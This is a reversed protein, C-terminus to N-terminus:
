TEVVNIVTNRTCHVGLKEGHLYAKQADLWTCKISNIYGEPRHLLYVIQLTCHQKKICFLTPAGLIVTDSYFHMCMFSCSLFNSVEFMVLLLMFVIHFTHMTDLSLMDVIHVM